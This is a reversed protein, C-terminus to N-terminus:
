GEITKMSEAQECGMAAPSRRVLHIDQPILDDIMKRAHGRYADRMDAYELFQRLHFIAKRPNRLFNRRSLCFLGLNYHADAYCPHIAIAKEYWVAAELFLEKEELAIALNYCATANRPDAAVANRYYRRARTFDGMSFFLNGANIWAEVCMPDCHIAERYFALAFMVVSHTYPRMQEAALGRRFLDEAAAQRERRSRDYLEYMNSGEIRHYWRMVGEKNLISAAKLM